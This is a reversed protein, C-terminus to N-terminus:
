DGEIEKKLEEESFIKDIEKRHEIILRNMEIIFNALELDTNIDIFDIIDKQMDNLQLNMKDIKKQIEKKTERHQQLKAKLELYNIEQSNNNLFLLLVLDDLGLEDLRKDIEKIEKLLREETKDKM